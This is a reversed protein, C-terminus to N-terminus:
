GPATTTQVGTTEAVATLCVRVSKIEPVQDTSFKLQHNFQVLGNPWNHEPM